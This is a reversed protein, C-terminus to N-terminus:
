AVKHRVSLSQLAEEPNSVTTSLMEIIDSDCVKAEIIWVALGKADPPLHELRFDVEQPFYWRAIPQ